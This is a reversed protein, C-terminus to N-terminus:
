QCVDLTGCTRCTWRLEPKRTSCQQCHWELEDTSAPNVSHGGVGSFKFHFSVATCQELSTGSLTYAVKLKELVDDACVPNKVLDPDVSGSVLHTVVNATCENVPEEETNVGKSARRPKSTVVGITRTVSKGM